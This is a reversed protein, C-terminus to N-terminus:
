RRSSKVDNNTIRCIKVQGVRIKGRCSGPITARYGSPGTETVNYAGAHLTVETGAESGAFSSPEASPGAVNMTFDAATKTGGNNNIVHKIVILKGSQDDNTVICTKTEGPAIIGSCDESFSPVYGRPPKEGVTYAGADLTVETGVSSGPSSAPTANGGTVTLTFQDPRRTGGNDNIVQKIVILKGSGTRLTNVFPCTLPGSNPHISDFTCIGDNSVQWGEPTRERVELGTLGDLDVFVDFFSDVHFNNGEDTTVTAMSQSVAGVYLPLYLPRLDFDFTGGGGQSTKDITVPIRSLVRAPQTAHVSDGSTAMTKVRGNEDTSGCFNSNVDHLGGGPCTGDQNQFVWPVNMAQFQYFFVPAGILGDGSRLGGDFVPPPLPDGGDGGGVPTFTFRPVVNFQSDFIGGNPHTKRVTMSGPQPMTDSLNLRVDWLTPKDNIVVTIPQCSVLNLEVLEIPITGQAPDGGFNLAHMRRMVTDTSGQSPDEPGGCLPVVGNFPASGPGFFDPPLPTQAFSYQTMGAPTEFSDDGPPIDGHPTSDCADGIGDVDSDIQDANITSPCNDVEDPIGDGDLDEHEAEAVPILVPLALAFSSFIIHLALISCRASLRTRLSRTVSM